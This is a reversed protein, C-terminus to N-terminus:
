KIIFYKYIFSCRNVARKVTSVSVDCIEALEEISGPYETLYAAMIKRDRVDHIYQELVFLINEKSDEIRLRGM